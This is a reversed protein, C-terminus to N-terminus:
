KHTPTTYNCAGWKIQYFKINVYMNFYTRHGYCHSIYTKCEACCGPNPTSPSIHHHMQSWEMIHNVTPLYECGEFDQSQTRKIDEAPCLETPKCDMVKTPNGWKVCQACKEHNDITVTNDSMVTTIPVWKSCVM